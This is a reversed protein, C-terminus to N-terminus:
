KNKLEEDILSILAEIEEITSNFGILRGDKQSKNYKVLEIFDLDTCLSKYDRPTANTLWQYNYFQKLYIKEFEAAQKAAVEKSQYEILKYRFQYLMQYRERLSDNSILSFGNAKLNDYTSTNTMTLTFGPIRAFHVDLTDHYPKKESLHESIIQSSEISNKLVTMAYGRFMNVDHKLNDKMLLLTKKEYVRQKREENWNNISLAILIGIVVLVIEGIAYRMYKLPKNDDAM